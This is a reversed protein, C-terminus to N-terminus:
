IFHIQCAVHSLSVVFFRKYEFAVHSSLMSVRGLQRPRGADEAGLPNGSVDVQLYRLERADKLGALAQPPLLM